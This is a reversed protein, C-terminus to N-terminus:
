IVGDLMDTEWIEWVNDYLDIIEPGSMFSIMRASIGHEILYKKRDVM